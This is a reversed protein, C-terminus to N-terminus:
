PVGRVREVFHRGGGFSSAFYGDRESDFPSLLGLLAVTVVIAVVASFALVNRTHELPVKM